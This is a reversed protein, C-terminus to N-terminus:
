DQMQPDSKKRVEIYALIAEVTGDFGLRSSDLSIMIWPMSGNKEPITSIIVLETTTRKPM